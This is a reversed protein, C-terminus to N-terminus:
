NNHQPLRPIIPNRILYRLFLAIPLFKQHFVAISLTINAVPQRSQRITRCTSGYVCGFLTSTNIRLCLWICYNPHTSGYVRGFLKSANVRLCLWITNVHQSTSVALYNPCTSRYVRGFLKSANVPLCLWITQVRQGMSVALYNQRASEYVRGFLKSTSVRLCPWITKVRQRRM